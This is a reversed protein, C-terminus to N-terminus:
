QKPLHGALEQTFENRSTLYTWQADSYIGMRRVLFDEATRVKESLIIKKIEEGSPLSQAASFTNFFSKQRLPRATKQRDYRKGCNKMIKQSIKQGMIRFTTLKGGVIVHVGPYPHIVKAQRSTKAKDQSDSKKVLPRIGAYSSLIDDEGIRITPFFEKLNDLLYKKERESVSQCFLDPDPEVETTGVLVMGKQPILFIIRGDNPRLVIPSALPLASDKIWLHSGKSLLLCPSWKLFSFHSLLHDTFPGTAFVIERTTVGSEVGTLTDRLHVSFKDEWPTIGVLETYNHAQAKKELLADYINELSIQADDVIVDHYVGAGVLNKLDLIPFRRGIEAPSLLYHNSNQFGSLADYCALGVKVMWWPHQADKFVPLCFPLEKCLHPALKLWLNKEHLAEWVMAFDYTEMYRIGGHFMKSSKSSTQSAFDGKDILVVRAGHLALDRFIGAGVIGGGVVLADLVENAEM